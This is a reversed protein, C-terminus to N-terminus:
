ESQEEKTAEQIESMFKLLGKAFIVEHKNSKDERKNQLDIWSKLAGMLSVEGGVILWYDSKSGVTDKSSIVVSNFDPTEVEGNENEFKFMPM